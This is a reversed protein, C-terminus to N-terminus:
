TKVLVLGILWSLFQTNVLSMQLGLVPSWSFSPHDFSRIHAPVSPKSPSVERSTYLIYWVGATEVLIDTGRKDKDFITKKALVSKYISLNTTNRLAQRLFSTEASRRTQTDPDM